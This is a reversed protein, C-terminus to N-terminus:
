SRSEKATVLAVRREFDEDVWERVWDGLTRAGRTPHGIPRIWQSRHFPRLAAVLAGRTERWAELAQPASLGLDGTQPAPDSIVPLPLIEGLLHDIVRVRFTDRAGLQILAEGLGAHAGMVSWREPEEELREILSTWERTTM